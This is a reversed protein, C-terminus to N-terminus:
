PLKLRLISIRKKIEAALDFIEVEQFFPEGGTFTVGGNEESYFPFDRLIEQLLEEVSMYKGTVTIAKSPCVSRYSDPNKLSKRDIVLQNGTVTISGGSIDVCDQFNKCRKEDYILEPYFSRSEPNSCWKCQLPCGKFFVNTRIGTGDHTSFRQIDFVLLPKM